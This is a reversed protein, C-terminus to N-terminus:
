EFVWALAAARLADITSELKHQDNAEAEKV